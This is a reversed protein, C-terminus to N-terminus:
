IVKGFIISLPSRTPVVETLEFGGRRFLDAFEFQTRELAGHSVLMNLDSFKGEPVENPPGVIREIVILTANSSMSKHCTRLIELAREDNWDHLIFKLIYADCGRPIQEFFSGPQIEVRGELGPVALVSGATAVVQPQDFLVGHTAPCALLVEKLLLGQGGGVDIIRAFQGFDYAALVARAQSTSNGTMASDFSMQEDPNNKRYAWSDLGHTVVYAADGTKISHLLNGWVHWPGPRGVFRAWNLRTDVSDSTLCQGVRTLAFEKNEQEHFVGVSALARMLRYLAGPHAGCEKAIIECSLPGDKLIDAVGLAAAVHLAQSVQYGNIMRMLEASPDLTNM